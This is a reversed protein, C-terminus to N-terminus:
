YSVKCYAPSHHLLPKVASLTVCKEAGIVETTQAIPKMVDLFVEMAMIEEDTPMLDMKRLELLAACLPQQQKLTREPM